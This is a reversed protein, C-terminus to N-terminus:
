ATLNASMSSAAGPQFNTGMAEPGSASHHSAARASASPAAWSDQTTITPGGWLIPRLGGYASGPGRFVPGYQPFARRPKNPAHYYTYVLYGWRYKSGAMASTSILAAGAILALVLASNRFFNGM